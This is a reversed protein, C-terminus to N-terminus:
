IVMKSSVYHDIADPQTITSPKVEYPHIHNDNIIPPKTLSTVVRGAQTRIYQRYVYVCSCSHNRLHM